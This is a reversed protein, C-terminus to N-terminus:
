IASPYTHSLADRLESVENKLKRVEEELEKIQKEQMERILDGADYLMKWDKSTYREPETFLECFWEWAEHWQQAYTELEYEEYRSDLYDNFQRQALYDEDNM